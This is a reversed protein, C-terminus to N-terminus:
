WAVRESEETEGVGVCVWVCMRVCVYLTCTMVRGRSVKFQM